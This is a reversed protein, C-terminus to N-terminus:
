ELGLFGRYKLLLKTTQDDYEYRPPYAAHLTKEDIKVFLKDEEFFDRGYVVNRAQGTPSSLKILCVTGERASNIAARTFLNQITEVQGIFTNDILHFKTGLSFEGLIVNVGIILPTFGQIIYGTALELICPKPTVTVKSLYYTLKKKFRELLQYIINGTIIDV